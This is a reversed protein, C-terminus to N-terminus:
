GDARGEKRRRRSPRQRLEHLLAARERFTDLSAAYTIRWRKWVPPAPKDEEAPQGLGDPVEPPHIRRIFRELSRQGVCGGPFGHARHITLAVDALWALRHAARRDTIRCYAALLGPEWENWAFVAPIAGIIRPDPNEGVVTLALVQESPRAAGPVTLKTVRLDVAGLARLELVIDEPETGPRTTGTLFWQVPVDLAEALRLLQDFSPQQQGTEFRAIQWQRLGCRRALQTQTLGCHARAEVLHQGVNKFTQEGKWHRKGM